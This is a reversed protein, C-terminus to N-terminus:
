GMGVSASAPVLFVWTTGRRLPIDHGAADVFRTGATVSPRTWTGTFARGDRLVTVPGSGVTVNYPTPSGDESKTNGDTTQRVHQIVVTSAAIRRGDSLANAAGDQSLLWHQTGRDFAFSLSAAPYTVRVRPVVTGGPFADAFTLGVSRAPTGPKVKILGAPDVFTNHPAAHGSVQRYPGPVVDPDATRLVSARLASLVSPAAGSFAIEPMGLQALLEINDTRGSRVPGVLPPIRSSFVVTLRTLGGEVEEVYVLDAEDLGAQPFAGAVNDVKVALVPLGRPSPRGSLPSPPGVQRRGPADAGPATPAAVSTSPTGPPPTGASGARGSGGGSCATLVVAGAAAAAALVRRSRTVPLVTLM